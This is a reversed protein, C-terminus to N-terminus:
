AGIGCAYWNGFGASKPLYGDVTDAVVREAYITEVKQTPTGINASIAIGRRRRLYFRSKWGYM